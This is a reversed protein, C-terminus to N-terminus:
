HSGGVAAMDRLRDFQKLDPLVVKVKGPLRESHVPSIHRCKRFRTAKDRESSVLNEELVQTM